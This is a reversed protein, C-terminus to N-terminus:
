DFMHMLDMLGSLEPNILRNLGFFICFVAVGVALAICVWWFFAVMEDWTNEDNTKRFFNIGFVAAIILVAAFVLDM